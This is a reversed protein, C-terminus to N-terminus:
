TSEAPHLRCGPLGVPRTERPELRDARAAARDVRRRLPALARRQLGAPGPPRGLPRVTRAHHLPRLLLSQRRLLAGTKRTAARLLVHRRRGGEALRAQGRPCGALGPGLFGARIRARHGTGRAAPDLGQRRRDDGAHRARRERRGNGGALFRDDRARRERVAESFQRLSLHPRLYSTAGNAITRCCSRLRSRFVGGCAGARPCNSPWRGFRDASSRSKASSRASFDRIAPRRDLPRGGSDLHRIGRQRAAFAAGRGPGAHVRVPRETARRRRRDGGLRQGRRRGARRDTPLTQGGHRTEERRRHRRCSDWQQNFLGAGFEAIKEKGRSLQVRGEKGVLAQIGEGRATGAALLELGAVAITLVMRTM